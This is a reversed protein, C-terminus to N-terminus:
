ICVATASPPTPIPRPPSPPSCCCTSLPTDQHLAAHHNNGSAAWACQQTPQKNATTMRHIHMVAWCILDMSLAEICHKKMPVACKQALLVEVCLGTSRIVRSSLALYTIHGFSYVGMPYIAPFPEVGIPDIQQLLQLLTNM